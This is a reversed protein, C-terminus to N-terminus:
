NESTCIRVLEIKGILVTNRTNNRHEYSNIGYILFTERVIKIAKGHIEMCIKVLRAGITQSYSGDYWVIFM